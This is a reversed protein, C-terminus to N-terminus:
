INRECLKCKILRNFKRAVGQTTPTINFLLRHTIERALWVMMKSFLNYDDSALDLSDTPHDFTEWKFQELFTKTHCTATYLYGHVAACQRGHSRWGQHANQAKEKQTSRRFNILTEYGVRSTVTVAPSTRWFYNGREESCLAWVKRNWLTQFEQDQKSVSFTHGSDPSNCRRHM